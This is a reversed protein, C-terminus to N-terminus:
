VLGRALLFQSISFEVKEGCASCISMRSGRDRNTFARIRLSGKCQSEPDAYLSNHLIDPLIIDPEGKQGKWITALPSEERPLHPATKLTPDFEFSSM